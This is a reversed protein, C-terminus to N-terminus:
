PSTVRPMSITSYAQPAGLRSLVSKLSLMPPPMSLQFRRWGSPTQAPTVGNLKGTITGNHIIGRASTAPLQKMRLGESRSGDALRSIARNSVSAPKGSPTNLTTWPSLTATSASNCCGSISAIEKTPEVGIASYMWWCPVACPLRTCARPPALFWIITM